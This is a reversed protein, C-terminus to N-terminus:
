LLSKKFIRLAEERSVNLRQEIWSIKKHDRAKLGLMIDDEPNNITKESSQNNRRNWSSDKTTHNM